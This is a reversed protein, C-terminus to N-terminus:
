GHNQVQLRSFSKEFQPYLQDFGNVQYDERLSLYPVLLRPSIKEANESLLNMVANPRVILLNGILSLTDFLPRVSQSIEADVMDLLSTYNRIDTQLRVAGLQSVFFQRYHAILNQSLFTLVCKLLVSENERSLHQATFTFLKKMMSVISDCVNTVNAIRNPDVDDSLEDNIINSTGFDEEYIEYKQTMSNGGFRYDSKRQRPLAVVSIWDCICDSQVVLVANILSTTKALMETKVQVISRYTDPSAAVLLPLIHSKFYLLILSLTRNVEHVTFLAFESVPDPNVSNNTIFSAGRLFSARTANLSIRATELACFVYRELTASLFTTTAKELSLPRRSESLLSYIRDVCEAHVAIVKKITVTSISKADHDTVHSFNEILPTNGPKFILLDISSRLEDLDDSKVDNVLNKLMNQTSKEKTTSKFLAAISNLGTAQRKKADAVSARILPGFAADTVSNIISIEDSPLTKIYPEFLEIKYNNLLSRTERLDQRYDRLSNTGSSNYLLRRSLSELIKNNLDDVKAICLSLMRQKAISSHRSAQRISEEFLVALPEQYARKLLACMVVIPTEFVAELYPWDADVTQSIQLCLSLIIPPIDEVHSKGYNKEPPFGFHDEPSSICETPSSKISNNDIPQVPYPYDLTKPSRHTSNLNSSNEEITFVLPFNKDLYATKVVSEDAPTIFLLHRGVFSQIVAAGGDLAFLLKAQTKMTQADSNEFASHFNQLCNSKFREIADEVRTKIDPIADTCSNLLRLMSVRDSGSDVGDYLTDALKELKISTNKGILDGVISLLELADSAKKKEIIAEALLGGSQGTLIRAENFDKQFNSFGNFITEISSQLLQFKERSSELQLSNRVVDLRSKVTEFQTEQERLTTEFANIYEVFDNKERGVMCEEATKITSGLLRSIESNAEM